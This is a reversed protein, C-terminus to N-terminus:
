RQYFHLVKMLLFQSVKWQHLDQILSFIQFGMLQNRALTTEEITSLESTVFINCYVITSHGEIGDVTYVDM